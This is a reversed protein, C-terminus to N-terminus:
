YKYVLFILTLILFLMHEDSIVFKNFFFPLRSTRMVDTVYFQTAIRICIAFFFCFLRAHHHWQSNSKTFCMTINIVDNRFHYYQFICEWSQIPDKHLLSEHKYVIGKNIFTQLIYIYVFM